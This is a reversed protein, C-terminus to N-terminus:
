TTVWAYSPLLVHYRTGRLLRLQDGVASIEFEEVLMEKTLLEPDMLSDGAIANARFTDSYEGLGVADLWSCVAAVNWAAVPLEPVDM